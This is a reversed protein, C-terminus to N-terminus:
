LPHVGTSYLESRWLVKKVVKYVSEDAATKNLKAFTGLIWQFHPWPVRDQFVICFLLEGQARMDTKKCWCIHFWTVVILRVTMPMLQSVYCCFIVSGNIVEPYIGSHVSSPTTLNRYVLCTATWAGNNLLFALTTLLVIEHSLVPSLGQVAMHSKHYVFHCYSLTKESLKTKRWYWELRTEHENM